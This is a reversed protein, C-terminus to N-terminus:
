KVKLKDGFIETLDYILKQNKEYQHVFEYKNEGVLIKIKGLTGANSGDETFVDDRKASFSIKEITEHHISFNKSDEALIEEPAKTQYREYYHAWFRMMENSSKLFGKKEQKLKEAIKKNEEHQRDSTLYCIVTQHDYIVIYTTIMKFLGEKKQASLVMKPVDQNGM